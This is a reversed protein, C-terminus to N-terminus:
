AFMDLNYRLKRNVVSSTKSIMSLLFNLKSSSRLLKIFSKQLMFTHATTMLKKNLATKNESSVFLQNFSIYHHQVKFIKTKKLTLALLTAFSGGLCCERPREHQSNLNSTKDVNQKSRWNATYKYYDNLKVYQSLFRIHNYM